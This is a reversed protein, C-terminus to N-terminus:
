SRLRENQSERQAQTPKPLTIRRSEISPRMARGCDGRGAQDPVLRL